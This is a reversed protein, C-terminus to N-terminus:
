THIDLIVNLKGIMQLLMPYMPTDIAKLLRQVILLDDNPNQEHHKSEDCEEDENWGQVGGHLGKHVADDAAQVKDVNDTVNDGYDNIRAIGVQQMDAAVSDNGLKVSALETVYNLVPVAIQAVDVDDVALRLMAGDAVLADLLEVMMALPQVM